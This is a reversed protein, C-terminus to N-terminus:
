AEPPNSLLVGGPVEIFPVEKMTKSDGERRWARRLEPCRAYVIKPNDRGVEIVWQEAQYEYDVEISGCHTPGDPGHKEGPKAPTNDHFYVNM